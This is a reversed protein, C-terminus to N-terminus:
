EYAKLRTNLAMIENELKRVKDNSEIVVQVMTRKSIATAQEAEEKQSQALKMADFCRDRDQQMEDAAENMASALQKAYDLQKTISWSKFTDGWQVQKVKNNEFLDACSLKEKVPIVNNM